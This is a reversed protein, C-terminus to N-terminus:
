LVFRATMAQLQNAMESVEGTTRAIEQITSALEHTASASREAQGAVFGVAEALEASAQTDEKMAAAIFVVGEARERINNGIAELTSSM